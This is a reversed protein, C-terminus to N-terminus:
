VHARGIERKHYHSQRKVYVTIGDRGWPKGSGKFVVSEGKGRRSQAPKVLTLDDTSM